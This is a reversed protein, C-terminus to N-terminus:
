GKILKKDIVYPIIKNKWLYERSRLANRKEPGAMEASKSEGNGFEEEEHGTLIIDGEFLREHSEAYLFIFLNLDYLGNQFNGIFIL